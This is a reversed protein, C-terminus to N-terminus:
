STARRPNMESFWSNSGPTFLLAVTALYLLGLLLAPANWPGRVAILAARLLGYAAFLYRAWDYGRRMMRRVVILGVILFPLLLPVGLRGPPPQFRGDALSSMSGVILVVRCGIILFILTTAIRLSVPPRTTPNM